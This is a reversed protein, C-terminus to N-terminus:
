SVRSRPVNVRARPAPHSRECDCAYVACGRNYQWCSLHHPTECRDCFVIGEGSPGAHSEGALGEGCVRCCADVALRMTAPPLILLDPEARLTLAREIALELAPGCATVPQSDRMARRVQSPLALAPRALVAQVAALLWSDYITQVLNSVLVCTGVWLAVQGDETRGASFVAAALGLGPLQALVRFLEPERDLEQLRQLQLWAQKTGWHFGVLAAGLAGLVSQSSLVPVIALGATALGAGCLTSSLTTRKRLRDELSVFGAADGVLEDPCTRQLGARGDRRLSLGVFEPRPGWNGSFRVMRSLLFLTAAADLGVLLPGTVTPRGEFILELIALMLCGWVARSPLKTLQGSRCAAQLAGVLLWTVVLLLEVPIRIELPAGYRAEKQQGAQDLLGQDQIGAASLQERASADGADRRGSSGCGHILCGVRCQDDLVVFHTYSREGYGPDVPEAQLYGEALLTGVCRATLMKGSLGRQAGNARARAEFPGGLLGPLRAGNTDLDFMMLAGSLTGQTSWCARRVTRNGQERSYTGGTLVSTFAFRFGQAVLLCPLASTVLLCTVAAAALAAVTARLVM